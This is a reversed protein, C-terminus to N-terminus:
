WLNRGPPVRVVVLSALYKVTKSLLRPNVIILSEVGDDLWGGDSCNERNCERM